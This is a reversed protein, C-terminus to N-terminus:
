LWLRQPDEMHWWTTRRITGLTSRWFYGHFPSQSSHEKAIEINGLSENVLAILYCDFFSWTYGNPANEMPEKKNPLAM